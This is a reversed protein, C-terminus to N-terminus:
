RRSVTAARCALVGRHGSNGSRIPTRGASLFGDGGGAQSDCSRTRARAVKRCVLVCAADRRDPYASVGSTVAAMVCRPRYSEAMPSDSPGPTSNISTVICTLSLSTPTRITTMSIM